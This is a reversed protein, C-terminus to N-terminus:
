NHKGNKLEQVKKMVETVEEKSLHGLVDNTIPTDYCFKGHKKIALEYENTGDTYSFTGQIVSVSYGNDFSLEAKIGPMFPHPKFILDEFTKM